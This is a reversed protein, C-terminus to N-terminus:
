KEELSVLEYEQKGMGCEEAAKIQELGKKKNNKLFVQEKKTILDYSAKDISVGDKGFLYGKDESIIKKPNKQCDCEKTINIMYSVYFQKKFNSSAAYAGEALLVDFYNVKPKLADYPCHYICNSCGFCKIFNPKDTVKIGDIPCMKECTKCQTCGELLVPEGGSHIDGKTKATLAGMGLNKIAGGFGTCVHGKVHTIILVGEAETLEKCVQYSMSNGKITIYDNNTRIEGLQDWGKEIVVKKHSEPNNRPSNYAVPSDYLFFKIKLQNLVNIIPKIQEPTFATKNGPEGFHIKIAITKCDKFEKKLKEKLKALFHNGLKKSYYIKNM